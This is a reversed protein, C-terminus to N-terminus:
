EDDVYQWIFGGAHKQVGNCCDRISKSNIGTTRVAESISEFITITEREDNMEKVVDSFTPFLNEDYRNESTELNWGARIYAREVSDKLIAPM